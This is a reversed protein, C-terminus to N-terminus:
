AYLMRLEIFSSFTPPLNSASSLFVISAFTSSTMVHNSPLWVASTSSNSSLNFSISPTHLQDDGLHVALSAARRRRARVKATGFTSSFTGTASGRARLDFFDILFLVPSFLPSIKFGLVFQLFCMLTKCKLRFYVYLPKYLVVVVLTRLYRDKVYLFSRM